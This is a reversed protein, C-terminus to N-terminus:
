YATFLYEKVRNGSLDSASNAFYYTYDLEKVDVNKKHKSLLELMEDKTPLSNSSYSVALISEPYKAFLRDFSEYIEKASKFGTKKSKIKRTKTKYDIEDEKWYSCLGEVFHYRRLYDNDSKTSCYPPDIYVLDHPALNLDFIDSCHSENKNQNSFVAGNLVDTAAIFQEQMTLMLDKRGDDYRDGVYTFLGRPRKKVCARCLSAIALSKKYSCDLTKIREFVEELFLYDPQSFYLDKFTKRIFKDTLVRANLLMDIDKDTLTVENNEIVSKANHFSYKLMDNTTVKKGKAKFMYGVCGTGSFADLVSNFELHSVSDWIFDLLKYKSGMYRTTPM